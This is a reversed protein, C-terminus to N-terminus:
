SAEFRPLEIRIFATREDLRVANLKGGQAEIISRSIALAMVKGRAGDAVVAELLDDFDTVCDDDDQIEVCANKDFSSTRITLEREKAPRCIIGSPDLILNFLVQQIQNKDAFALPTDPDLERSIVIRRDRLESDQLTILQDLLGNLDIPQPTPRPRVFYQCMEHVVNGVFMGDRIVGELAANAQGINVNDHALWNAAARANAVVAALPQVIKHSLSASVNAIAISQTARGIQDRMSDLTESARKEQDIDINVGVWYLIQGESDRLPEAQLLFWRYKGDAGLIRLQDQRATGSELGEKWNKRSLDQDDPHLFAVHADWPSEFNGADRLPHDLPLGLYKGTAQNVFALSGSPRAYWAQIPLANFTAQLNAEFPPLQKNSVPSPVAGFLWVEDGDSTVHKTGFVDVAIKRASASGGLFVNAQFLQSSMRATQWLRSSVARDEDGVFDLWSSASLEDPSIASMRGLAENAYICRGDSDTLWIPNPSHELFSGVVTSNIMM